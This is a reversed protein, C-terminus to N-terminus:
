RRNIPICIITTTTLKRKKNGVKLRIKRKKLIKRPLNRFYKKIKPKKLIKRPLNGSYKKIKRKKLIKRPLNGEKNMTMIKDKVNRLICNLRKRGIWFRNRRENRHNRVETKKKDQVIEVTWDNTKL